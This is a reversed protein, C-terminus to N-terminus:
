NGIDFYGDGGLILGDGAAKLSGDDDLYLGV